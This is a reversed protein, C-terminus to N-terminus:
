AVEWLAIPCILLFSFKSWDFFFPFNSIGISKKNKQSSMCTALCSPFTQPFPFHTGQWEKGPEAAFFGINQEKGFM